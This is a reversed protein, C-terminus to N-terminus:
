LVTQRDTTFRARSKDVKLSQCGTLSINLLLESGARFWKKILVERVVVNYKIMCATIDYYM